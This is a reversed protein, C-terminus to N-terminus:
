APVSRRRRRTLRLGLLGTGLLVLSAPEPTAVFAGKIIAGAPYTSEGASWTGLSQPVSGNSGSQMFSQTVPGTTLAWSDISGFPATLTLWYTTSATVAINLGSLDSVTYSSSSSPTVSQSFISTGPVGGVSSSFVAVNLPGVGKISVELETITNDAGTNFSYASASYYYTPSSLYNYVGAIGINSYGTISDLITNASACGPSGVLAIAWFAVGLAAAAVRHKRCFVAGAARSDPM